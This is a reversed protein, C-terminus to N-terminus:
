ASADGDSETRYAVVNDEACGEILDHLVDFFVARREAGILRDLHAMHERAQVEMRAFTTRGKETLYSAYNRRDEEVRERRILDMDELQRLAKAVSSKDRGISLGLESQRIGPNNRIMSMMSFYGPKLQDAGLRRAFDEFSAEYALRLHHGAFEDLLGFVLSGNERADAQGEHRRGTM